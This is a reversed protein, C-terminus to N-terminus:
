KQASERKFYSNNVATASAMDFITEGVTLFKETISRMTPDSISSTDPSFGSTRRVGALVTSLLAADVAYHVVRGFM